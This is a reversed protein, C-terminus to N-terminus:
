FLCDFLFGDYFYSECFFHYLAAADRLYMGTLSVDCAGSVQM